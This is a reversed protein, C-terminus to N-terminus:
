ASSEKAVIKFMAHPVAVPVGGPNGIHQIPVGRVYIPGAIVWVAGYKNAWAGAHYELDLWMGQNFGAWQPM